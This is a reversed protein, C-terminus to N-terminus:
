DSHFCIDVGIIVGDSNHHGIACFEHCARGIAIRAVRHVEVNIWLRVGCPCAALACDYIATATNRAELLLETEKGLLPNLVFDLVRGM